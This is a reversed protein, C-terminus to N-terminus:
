TVGRNFLTVHCGAALGAEVVAPGVFDTGGIVLLKKPITSALLRSGIGGATVGGVLSCGIKLFERRRM